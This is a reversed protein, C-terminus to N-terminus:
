AFHQDWIRAVAPRARVAVCLRELGPHAAFLAAPDEHWNTLMLLYPDLVSYNQGLFFPGEGIADAVLSWMDDVYSRAAAQVAEVQTPDATYRDSYYLRLVGEYLNAAAFFLWRYLAARESSGAAPLLGAEPHCEALHLVIAASETVVSGDDLQLAPSQGRPNIALYAAALEEGQATDVDCREYSAGAEELIVQPAFAGTDAAWYLKYL